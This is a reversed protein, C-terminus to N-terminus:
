CCSLLLLLLLLQVCVCAKLIAHVLNVNDGGRAVAVHLARMGSGVDGDVVM